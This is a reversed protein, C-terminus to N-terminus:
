DVLIPAGARAAAVVQAHVTDWAELPAASIQAVGGANTRALGVDIWALAVRGRDRGALQWVLREVAPLELTCGCAVVAEPLRRALSRWRDAVALKGEFIAAITVAAHPCDKFVRDALARPRRDPAPSPTPGPTALAALEADISSPGPAAARPVAAGFGFSVRTVGSTALAALLVRAAQWPLQTDIVLALAARATEDGPVSRQPERSRVAAVLATSAAAIPGTVLPAGDLELTVDADHCRALDTCPAVVVVVAPDPAAPAALRVPQVHDSSASTVGDEALATLWGALATAPACGGSGAGVSPSPGASGGAQPPENSSSPAPPSGRCAGVALLVSAIWAPAHRAARGRLGLSM